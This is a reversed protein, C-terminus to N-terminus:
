SHEQQSRRHRQRARKKQKGRLKIPTSKPPVDLIHMMFPINTSGFNMEAMITTGNSQVKSITPYQLNSSESPQEDVSLGARKFLLEAESDKQIFKYLNALNIISLITSPHQDGLLDECINLAQELLPQAELYKGRKMYVCGIDNMSTSTDVHNSGLIKERIALARKFLMEADDYNGQELHIHGLNNLSLAVLPHEIGFYKERIMLARKYLPEALELKGQKAYVCGLNNASIATEPHMAGFITERITMVQKHLAEADDFKGIDTYLLALNDKVRLADPQHLGSIDALINLSQHFLNEAEEYKGLEKCLYALNNLSAATDTHKTGLRQECLKLARRYLPEAEKYRGQCRYLVALNSLTVIININEVGLHHEFINMSKLYLPEAEKYKGLDVYLRALLNLCKTIDINYIPQKQQEYIRLAQQVLLEAEGFRARKYLYDGMHKLLSAAELTNNGEQEMWTSCLLAHPLYRECAEWYEFNAAPFIKEITRIVRKMWQQRKESPMTDRIVIQVLRHISFAKKESNRTILSYALLIKIAENRLFSDSATSSLTGGLYKGAVTVIEEPVDDPALFAFFHLLEASARNQNTIEEFSLSWTTIVSDLHDLATDGRRKLLEIRRQQYLHIYEDLGIKTEDIYAGAQDLALPLGGLAQTIELAFHQQEPSIQDLSAGEELMGARQLLFRVGQEETFSEVRLSRSLNGLTSARTTYLFHGQPATPLFPTLIKLEEVNDFILLWSSHNQLWQKVANIVIRQNQADKQPLNLLHAIDLYSATLEEQNEARMWFIYHYEKRYHRHAYEIAIQTKGIGGLGSIAQTIATSHGIHLQEYLHILVEERGTFFDNHPPVNWAYEPSTTLASSSPDSYNNFTQNISQYTAINQGYVSNNNQIGQDGKNSM